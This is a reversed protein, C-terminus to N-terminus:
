NRRPRERGRGQGPEDGIESLRTAAAFARGAFVSLQDRDFTNKGDEYMAQDKAMQGEAQALQVQYPRPDIQILLDGEKVNQGEKYLINQIAGDVRSKVTTTNFPTVAGIASLFVNLDGRTSRAASVPIAPRVTKTTTQAAQHHAYWFYGVVLVVLAGILWIRWDAAYGIRVRSSEGASYKLKTSESAPAGTTM